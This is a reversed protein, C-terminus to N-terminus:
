HCDRKGSRALIYPVDSVVNDKKV